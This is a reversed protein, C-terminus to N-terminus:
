HLTVPANWDEASFGWTTAPSLRVKQPAVSTGKPVLRLTQSPLIYNQKMDWVNNDPLSTVSQSMRVVYPSSNTVQLEGKSYTWKLLKWPANNRALGAPRIVVPLNQSVNVSVTNQGKNKPPIGEFTVRRLHETKLPTKNTLFFRVTQTKGSEVRIAPPSVQIINGKDGEVEKLTTVLLLPTKSTNRLTMTAEGSDEEIVVVSTSPLMGSAFASSFPIFLTTFIFLSFMKM